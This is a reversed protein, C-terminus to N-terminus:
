DPLLVIKGLARREELMAHAQSAEALPFTHAVNLQLRGASLEKILSLMTKQIQEPRHQRYHGFSFGIVARNAPYLTEPACAAAGPVMTGFCILRGFPALSCLDRELLPGGIPNLIVDFGAAATLEDIDTPYHPSEPDLVADAGSSRLHAHKWPSGSSAAILSAGRLRAVQLAISGVGGSAGHILIKEGPNLRAVDALMQMAAGGALPFAAAALPDLTEPIAFCLHEDALARAAYSGTATFAVVRDGPAFRTVERGVELIRGCADIGPTFPPKKGLHYSGSRSKLDAYNVSAGTIELLLQRPGPQLEALDTHRLAEPGGFANLLIGKM